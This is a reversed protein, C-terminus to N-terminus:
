ASAGSRWWSRWARPTWCWAAACPACRGRPSMARSRGSPFIGDSQRDGAVFALRGAMGPARTGAGHMLSLLARVQGQGSLGGLGVIEGFHATLPTASGPLDLTLCREGAGRADRATAAAEQVPAVHGMAAVLDARTSVSM